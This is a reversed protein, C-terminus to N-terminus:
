SHDGYSGYMWGVGNNQNENEQGFSVGSAGAEGRERPRRAPSNKGGDGRGVDDLDLALRHRMAAAVEGDMGAHADAGWAGEWGGSCRSPSGERGRAARVASVEAARAAGRAAGRAARIASVEAAWRDGDLSGSAGVGDRVARRRVEQGEGCVAGEFSGRIGGRGDAVVPNHPRPTLDSSASVAECGSQASREGRWVHRSMEGSARGQELEVQGEHVHGGQGSGPEEAGMRDSGESREQDVCSKTWAHMLGAPNQVDEAATACGEIGRAETSHTRIAVARLGQIVHADVAVAAEAPACAAIPRGGDVSAAHLGMPRATVAGSRASRASGAPSDTSNRTDDLRQLPARLGPVASATTVAAATREASGPQRGAAHEASRRVSRGESSHPTSARSGAPSRGDGGARAGDGFRMSGAPTKVRGGAHRGSVRTSLSVPSSRDHAHQARHADTPTRERRMTLSGDSQRQAHQLQLRPIQPSDSLRGARIHQPRSPSDDLSVVAPASAALDRPDAAAASVGGGVSDTSPHQSLAEMLQYEVDAKSQLLKRNVSREVQLQQRVQALAARDDQVVRGSMVQQIVVRRRILQCM